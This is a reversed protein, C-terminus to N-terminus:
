AAGRWEPWDMRAVDIAAAIADESVLENTYGLVYLASQMEWAENTRMEPLRSCLERILPLLDWANM